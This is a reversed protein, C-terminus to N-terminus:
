KKDDNPNNSNKYGDDYVPETHGDDYYPEIEEDDDYYPEIDNIDYQPEYNSYYHESYNIPQDLKELEEYEDDFNSASIPEFDDYIPPVKDNVEEEVLDNLLNDKIDEETDTHESFLLSNDESNDNMFDNSIIPITNYTVNDEITPDVNFKDIASYLANIAKTIADPSSKVYITYDSGTKRFTMSSFDYQYNENISHIRDVPIRFYHQGPYTPYVCYFNKNTVAYLATQDFFRDWLSRSKLSEGIFCTIVEEDILIGELMKSYKLISKYRKKWEFNHFEIYKMFDNFNKM